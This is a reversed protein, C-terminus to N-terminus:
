PIPVTVEGLDVLFPLQPNEPFTITLPASKGEMSKMFIMLNFGMKKPNFQQIAIIYKGTPLMDMEYLVRGDIGPITGKPLDSDLSIHGKQNIAFSVQGSDPFPVLQLYSEDTLFQQIQAFNTIVATFTIPAPEPTPTPPIPTNTPTPPIPTPTPMPALASCGSIGLFLVLLVTFCFIKKM